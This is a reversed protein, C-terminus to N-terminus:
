CFNLFHVNSIRITYISYKLIVLRVNSSFLLIFGPILSRYLIVSINRFEFYSFFEHPLFSLFIVNKRERLKFKSLIHYTHM